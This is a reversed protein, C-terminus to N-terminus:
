RVNASRAAVHRVTVLPRQAKMAHVDDRLKSHAGAFQYLSRSMGFALRRLYSTWHRVVIAASLLILEIKM